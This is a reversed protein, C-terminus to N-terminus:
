WKKGFMKGFLKSIELSNPFTQSFTQSFTELTKDKPVVIKIGNYITNYKWCTDFDVRSSTRPLFTRTRAVDLERRDDQHGGGKQVSRKRRLPPRFINM